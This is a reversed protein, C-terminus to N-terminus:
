IKINYVKGRLTIKEEEYLVEFHELRGWVDYTPRTELKVFYGIKAFDGDWVGLVDLFECCLELTVEFTQHVELSKLPNDLEEHYRDFLNGLYWSEFYMPYNFVLQGGVPNYQFKNRTTYPMATPNYYLNPVLDDPNVQVVKARNLSVGDWLLLRPQALEDATLRVAGTYVASGFNSRLDNARSAIRAFWVAVYAGLVAGAGASLIGATLAVTVVLLLFLFAYAVTEGDNILDRIYDARARGDRVFGTSAFQFNNSVSGELMLNNAPGDYDVLDNYLPQAEQSALDAADITYQYRGYAPKKQGDLDYELTELEWKDTATLDLIPATNLFEALPKFVLTNGPTVYWEAKMPGKLYDLLEAITINWRNEFHYWLASATVSGGDNVHMAGASPFYLCLNYYPNAPDHFMTDLGLGHKQAFNTLFDRLLPADVFNDVNLIRRVQNDGSPLPIAPTIPISQWFITFGMRVSSVLRPRPEIATLFCPHQKASGDEFWHQWNDWIFTKHVAHWAPDAERLPVQLECPAAYPAHHLNDAKIEFYRYRQRCLADELRVEVANLIGCRSGLLHDYIFTYAADRFTLTLSLGKDYNSGAENTQATDSTSSNVKDWTFSVKELGETLDTFEQWATDEVGPVYTATGDPQCQVVVPGTDDALQRRRLYLRLRERNM